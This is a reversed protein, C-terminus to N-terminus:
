ASVNEFLFTPAGPTAGEAAPQLEGKLEEGVHDGAIVKKKGSADIYVVELEKCGTTKKIGNAMEKLVNAEDFGLKRHFVAKPDEGGALQRRLGQVFPMAKRTEPGAKKGVEKIFDKENDLGHKEFQQRVMEIYKEQWGPFSEAAFIILKKPQKPDYSVAKGKSKKKLQM